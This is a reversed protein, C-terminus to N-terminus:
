GLRAIQRISRQIRRVTEISVDRPLAIEVAENFDITHSEIVTRLAHSLYNQLASSAQSLEDLAEPRHYLVFVIDELDASLRLDNGGRDVLAHMKMGLLYPSEPLRISLGPKLPYSWTHEFAEAYWRNEFGLIDGPVVAVDVQVRLEGGLVYRSIVGSHVDHAFGRSRLFQELEDFHQRSALRIVVDVDQTPRPPEVMPRTAYLEIAAGGVLMFEDLRLELAEAIARIRRLNLSTM